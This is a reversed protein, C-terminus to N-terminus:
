DDEFENKFDAVCSENDTSNGNIFIQVYSNGTSEILYSKLDLNVKNEKDELYEWNGPYKVEFLDDKISKPNTIDPIKEEDFYSQIRKCNSLLLLIILTVRFFSFKM